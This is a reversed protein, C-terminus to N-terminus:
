PRMRPDRTPDAFMAPCGGEGAGPRLEFHWPENRYVRCLGYSAGHRALWAMAASPGIDVADGSVHLSTEVTAVWRMAERRSGYTAVAQHFLDRQHAPSRWGSNVVIRVGDNDADVAAQRLARRLDPDLNTVAPGGDDAATRGRRIGASAPDSM